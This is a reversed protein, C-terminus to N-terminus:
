NSSGKTIPRLGVRINARGATGFDERSVKAFSPAYGDHEFRFEHVVDTRMDPVQAHPTVGVRLWVTTSEPTANIEIRGARDGEHISDPLEIAPQATQEVPQPRRPRERRKDRGKSAGRGRKRKTRAPETKNELKDPELAVEIRYTDETWQSPAITITETQYGALELRVVHHMSRPLNMTTVPTRGVLTWVTSGTPSSDLTITGTAPPAPKEPEAIEAPKAPERIEYYWLVGAAGMVLICALLWAVTNRRPEMEFANLDYAVPQTTSPDQTAPRPITERLDPPPTDEWRDDPLERVSRSRAHQAKRKLTGPRSTARSDRSRERASPEDDPPPNPPRGWWHRADHGAKGPAPAPNSDETAPRNSDRIAQLLDDVSGARGVDPPESEIRNSELESDWESAVVRPTETPPKTERKKERERMERKAQKLVSGLFGSLGLATVDLDLSRALDLLDVQLERATQYRDDEAKELARMVIPELDTPYDERISSPLPVDEEVIDKLVTYESKGTYLRTNTSLEYLIIGLSYIDSRRDVPEGKCQEPSMYALKGKLTGYSTHTTRNSAKAIGFDVLKVTGDRTLFVNHPTVDRHVIELPEGDFNEKEHAYHLAAAVSIVVHLALELPFGTERATLVNWVTLLDAGDLYEMAIYHEGDQEGADYIQVINPHQLTAAIRAEDLFMRFFEETEALQPLIRKLVVNKEFGGVGKQRALYIEAMGGVAIKKLLQYRGLRTLALKPDAQEADNSM